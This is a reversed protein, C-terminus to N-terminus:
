ILEFHPLDHLTQDDTNTDGDWDAGCRIKIGLEEAVRSVYGVFMYFRGKDQWDVPYPVVDIALSPDKNHMSDPWTLGSNGNRCAKNQEDQGRHGCIVACDLQKVVVQFLLQLDPHCTKLRETSSIGFRPM